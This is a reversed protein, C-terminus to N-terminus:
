RSKIETNLYVVFCKFSSVVELCILDMNCYCNGPIRVQQLCYEAIVSICLNKKKTIAVVIENM